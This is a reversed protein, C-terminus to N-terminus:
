ALRSAAAASWAASLGPSCTPVGGHSYSLRHRPWISLAHWCMGLCVGSFSHEAGHAAVAGRAGHAVQLSGPERGGAGRQLEATGAAGHGAPAEAGVAGGAPPVHMDVTLVRDLRRLHPCKLSAAPQSASQLHVTTQRYYHRLNSATRLLTTPQFGDTSCILARSSTEGSPRAGSLRATELPVAARGCTEKATGRAAPGCTLVSCYRSMM